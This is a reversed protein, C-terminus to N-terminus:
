ETAPTPAKPVSRPYFGARGETNLGTFQVPQLLASTSSDIEENELIVVQGPGSWTALWSYFRQTITEGSVDLDETKRPNAYAKLPSDIVVVCLHPNGSVVAHRLMAVTLAVLFIAGKGAGYGLRPRGDIVLDCELADLTVSSIHMFGWTSLLDKAFAAVAIGASGSDRTIEFRRRVKSKKLREIENQLRQIKDFSARLRLRNVSVPM